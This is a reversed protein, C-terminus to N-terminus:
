FSNVRALATEGPTPHVIAPTKRLIRYGQIELKRTQYGLAAWGTMADISAQRGSGTRAQRHTLNNEIEARRVGRHASLCDYAELPGVTGSSM